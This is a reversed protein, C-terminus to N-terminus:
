AAAHLESIVPYPTSHEVHAAAEVDAASLVGANLQERVLDRVVVTRTIKRLAAPKLRAKLKALDYTTSKRSTITVRTTGHEVTRAGRQAMEKVVADREVHAKAELQKAEAKLESYKRAKAVLQADTM